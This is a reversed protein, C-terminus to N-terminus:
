QVGTMPDDSFLLLRVFVLDMCNEDLVIVNELGFNRWRCQFAYSMCDSVLAIDLEVIRSWFLTIHHVVLQKLSEGALNVVLARYAIRRWYLVAYRLRVKSDISSPIM